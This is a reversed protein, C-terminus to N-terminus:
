VDFGAFFAGREKFFKAIADYSQPLPRARQYRSDTQLGADFAMVAEAPVGAQNLAAAVTHVSLREGFSAVQDLLRPTTEAVLSIGRLLDALEQLLPAHAPV